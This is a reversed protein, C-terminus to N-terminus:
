RSNPRGLSQFARYQNQIELAIRGRFWWLRGPQQLDRGGGGLDECLCPVLGVQVTSVTLCNFHVVYRYQYWQIKTLTKLNRLKLGSSLFARWEMFLRWPSGWGLRGSQFMKLRYHHIMVINQFLLVIPRLQAKKLTSVQKIMDIDAQVIYANSGWVVM